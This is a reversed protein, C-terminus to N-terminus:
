AAGAQVLGRGRARSPPVTGRVVGRGRPVNGRGSVNHSHPVFPVQVGARGRGGAWGLGRGGVGRAAGGGRGPAPGGGGRGPGYHGGRAPGFGGKKGGRGFRVSSPVLTLANLSDTLGDVLPTDASQPSSSPPSVSPLLSATGRTGMRPTADPDLDTSMSREVSNQHDEQGDSEQEDDEDVEEGEDEDEDSDQDDTEMRHTDMDVDPATVVATSEGSKGRPKWEKRIMSVGEGWKKLLGGVGKNTVAFFYEKPYSHAQILHLRRTKPTLFLRPCAALHCAFIKEGREKRVAALPDHCETQHLELLRADPFVCGCGTLECVHAHYKAYHSELEKTNAIPTPRHNCTPPLSCVLPRQTSSSHPSPQSDVIIRSAKSTHQNPSSASSSSSSSLSSTRHRKFTSTSM